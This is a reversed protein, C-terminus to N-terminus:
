NYDVTVAFTGTYIGAKQSAAVTLTGGLTFSDTGDTSLTSTIADAAAGNFRATMLTITMPVSEAVASTVNTTAPLTLSYTSSLTGTVTYSANTAAPAVPSTAVGTAVRTISNSPLLVTGAVGTLTNVTGFHLPTVQTITMPVIIKAGAATAAITSSTVGDVAMASNSFGAMLVVASLIMFTKKMKNTKFITQLFNTTQKQM